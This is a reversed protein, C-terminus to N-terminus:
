SVRLQRQEWVSLMVASCMITELSRTTELLWLVDALPAQSSYSSGHSHSTDGSNLVYFLLIFTCRHGEDCLALERNLKPDTEQGGIRVSNSWEPKSQKPSKALGRVNRQNPIKFCDRWMAKWREQSTPNINNIKEM